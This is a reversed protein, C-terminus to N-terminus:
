LMRSVYIDSNATNGNSHSKATPNSRNVVEKEHTRSHQRKIKITLLTAFEKKLQLWTGATPFHVKELVDLIEYFRM